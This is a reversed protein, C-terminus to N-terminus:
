SPNPHSPGHQYPTLPHNILFLPLTLCARIPHPLSWTGQLSSQSSLSLHFECDSSTEFLYLALDAIKDNLRERYNREVVTHARKANKLSMENASQSRRHTPRSSSASPPTNPSRTAEWIYGESDDDEMVDEMERESGLDPVIQLQPVHPPSRGSPRQHQPEYVPTLPAFRADHAFVGIHPSPGSSIISSSHPPYQSIPSDTPYYPM